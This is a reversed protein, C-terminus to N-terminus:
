ASAAPGSLGVVGALTWRVQAGENVAAGGSTAAAEPGLFVGLASAGDLPVDLRLPALGAAGAVLKGDAFACVRYGIENFPPADESLELTAVSAGSPLAWEVWAGAAPAPALVMGVGDCPAGQAPLNTAVIFQGGADELAVEAPAAGTSAPAVDVASGACGAVMAFVSLLLLRVARPPSPPTM